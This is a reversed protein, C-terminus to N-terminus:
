GRPPKTAVFSPLATMTGLWRTLNPADAVIAKGEPYLSTLYLTPLLFLDALTLGDGAIWDRGALHQDIVTVVQQVAPVAAAVKEMDPERGQWKPLAYALVYNRICAKDASDCGVGVWQDVLAKAALDGPRLSAGPFADDIYRCIAQSEFLVLDGHRFAPIKGFPNIARIEASQPAVPELRYPIGKEILVMRVTRVFNSIPSGYVVVEAPADTGAAAEDTM